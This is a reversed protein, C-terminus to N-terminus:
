VAFLCELFVYPKSPPLASFPLFPTCSLLPAYQPMCVTRRFPSVLWYALVVCHASYPASPSRRTACTYDLSAYHTPKLHCVAIRRFPLASPLRSDHATGHAWAGDTAMAAMAARSAEAAAQEQRVQM